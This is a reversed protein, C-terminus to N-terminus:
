NSKTEANRAKEMERAINMLNGSKGNGNSVISKKIIDEAEKNGSNEQNSIDEEDEEEEEDSLILDSLRTMGSSNEGRLVEESSEHNGNGNGNGNGDNYEEEVMRVKKSINRGRNNTKLISKPQQEIPEEQNNDQERTQVPLNPTEKPFTEFHQQSQNQTMINRAVNEVWEFAKNGEYKELLGSPFMLLISPVFQISLKKNNQVLKRIDKNDLCIFKLLHKIPTSLQIIKQSNESYKSYFLIIENPISKNM